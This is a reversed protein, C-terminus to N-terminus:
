DKEGCNGEVGQKDAVGKDRVADGPRRLDIDLSRYLAVYFEKTLQVFCVITLKGSLKNIAAVPYDAKVNSTFLLFPHRNAELHNRILSTASPNRPHTVLV